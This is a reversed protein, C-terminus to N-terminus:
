MFGHHFANCSNGRDRRDKHAESQRTGDSLLEDPAGVEIKEEIVPLILAFEVPGLRQEAGPDSGFQAHAPVSTMRDHQPVAHQGIEAGLRELGVVFDETIILIIRGLEFSIGAHNGAILLYAVIRAGKQAIRDPVEIRVQRSQQQM